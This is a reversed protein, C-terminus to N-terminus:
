LRNPGYPHGLAAVLVVDPNAPDVLIKAISQSDALGNAAWTKGGDVSKFLGIGQAIDSRMDAEGTGIYLTNPASPAIALAGISGVPIGDSIAM